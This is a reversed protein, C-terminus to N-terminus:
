ELDAPRSQSINEKQPEGVLCNQDEAREGGYGVCRGLTPSQTRHDWRRTTSEHQSAEEQRYNPTGPEASPPAKRTGIPRGEFDSHGEKM